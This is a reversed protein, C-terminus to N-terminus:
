RKGLCLMAIKQHDIAIRGASACRRRLIARVVRASVAVVSAVASPMLLLAPNICRGVSAAGTRHRDAGPLGLSSRCAVHSPFIVARRV